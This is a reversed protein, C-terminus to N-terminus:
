FALEELRSEVLQMQKTYSGFMVGRNLSCDQSDRGQALIISREDMRRNNTPDFGYWYQGDWVEAWSHTEGEDFALGAIYRCPISAQHLLSLFIHTYDQCVGTGKQFAEAATISVDTSNKVYSMREFLLDMFRDAVKLPDTVGVTERQCQLFFKQLGTDPKTMPSAYRYIAMWDSKQRVDDRDVIGHVSYDLYRHAHPIHGSLLRNGFADVSRNPFLNPEMTFHYEVIKQSVTERPICRLLFSHDRVHNNM